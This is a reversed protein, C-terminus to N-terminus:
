YVKLTVFLHFSPVTLITMFTTKTRGQQKIDAESMSIACVPKM